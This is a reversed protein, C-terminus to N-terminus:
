KVQAWDGDGQLAKGLSVSYKVEALFSPFIEKLDRIALESAQQQQGVDGQTAFNLEYMYVDVYQLRSASDTLYPDLYYTVATSPYITLASTPDLLYGNGVDSVTEPAACLMDPSYVWGMPLVLDICLLTSIDTPFPACRLHLRWNVGPPPPVTPLRRLHGM